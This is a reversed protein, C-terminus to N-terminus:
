RIPWTSWISCHGAIDTGELTQALRSIVANMVAFPAFHLHTLTLKGSADLFILGFHAQSLGHGAEHLAVTEVDNDPGLFTATDISWLFNLNYYIERFATDLKRDGNIDTLNGDADVFPFTLTVGLIFSGGGPVLLDFFGGPLWGAHTLDAFVFPLGGFGLLNQAVGIDVPSSPQTVISLGPSCIQSNWTGMARDIAAETKDSTLTSTMGDALDVIYSISNTGGRRPDGPVWHFSLQKNGVDKAVIIGGPIATNAPTVYEIVALRYNVGQAALVGNIHSFDAFLVSEEMQERHHKGQGAPGRTSTALVLGISFLVTVGLAALLSSKLTKM